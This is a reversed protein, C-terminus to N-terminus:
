QIIAMPNVKKVFEIVEGTTFVEGTFKGNVCARLEDYFSFSLWILLQERGLATKVMEIFCGLSALSDVAAKSWSPILAEVEGRTMRDVEEKPVTIQLIRCNTKTDWYNSNKVKPNMMKKYYEPNGGMQEMLELTKVALQGVDLQLPVDVEQSHALLLVTMLRPYMAWSRKVKKQEKAGVTTKVKKPLKFPRRKTIRGKKEAEASIKKEKLYVGGEPKVVKGM